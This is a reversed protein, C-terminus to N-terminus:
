RSVTDLDQSKTVAFMDSEYRAPAQAVPRTVTALAWGVFVTNRADWSVDVWTYVVYMALFATACLTVALAIGSDRRRVRDAGILLAKIFILLMVVFGGFGLKIWIWLMANHPLYANLEFFSIDPLFVPRYFPQGFGLGFVPNARITFNLNFAEVLRYLDSSQDEASASGPSIIGKIAQAPFALSATSNWFAAVYAALVLTVSPVSVWFMARRRWFTAIALIVGAILLSAIGARRQAAIFVYMTPVLAAVLGVRLLPRKVRLLVLVVLTVVVLGHGLASGHETLSELDARRAPDLRDLYVVSLLSQVTVGTVIAYLAHRYHAEDTCALSTVVFMLLIYFLPRSELVAIRTDGRLMIIGRFLGYVLFGTFSVIPWLLPRRPLIRREAAYLRLCALAAGASLGIDLPSITLADSVFSISERSSLNKVFPFWWVTVQDSVATFFLTAYLAVRPRLVWGLLLLLILVLSLGLWPESVRRRAVAAVLLGGGVILIYVPWWTTRENRVGAHLSGFTLTV